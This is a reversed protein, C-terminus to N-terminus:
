EPIIDIERVVLNGPKPQIVDAKECPLDLTKKAEGIFYPNEQITKVEFPSQDTFHGVRQGHNEFFQYLRKNTIREMKLSIGKLGLNKGAVLANDIVFPLYKTLIQPNKGPGNLCYNGLSDITLYLVGDKIKLNYGVDIASSPDNSTYTIELTKGEQLDKINNDSLGLDRLNEPPDKNHVLINGAYYDSFGGVQLNYVKVSNLPVIRKITKIIATKGDSTLFKDGIKLDQVKVWNSDEYSYFPHEGTVNLEQGSILILNLLIVEMVILFLNFGEKKMM